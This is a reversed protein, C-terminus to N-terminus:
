AGAPAIEVPRGRPPRQGVRLVIAAAIFCLLGSIVFSSVYNGSYTRLLGAGYAAVASGVQHIATIWGFMMGARAAGFADACLKLTPPVTALWDLGYFIGFLTLGYFTYDFAYPLFLLSLGRLGYYWFLLYRSDFRDSLWGSGTTGIFNFIGMSALLGAATVEPIGGELCFPIFHTGVLGNTSWGCVFFSASLLWFDRSTLGEGLASIAVVFPNQPGAPPDAEARTAGYPALGLERPYDRMFIAVVPVMLLLTAAVLGAAWRWGATEVVKALMPLFILQGAATSSTLAGIVLGRRQAFWRNAVVAGLVLAALGSGTGIVVGWLLVMQWSATMVLTAALGLAMIALALITTRRLGIRDMLAASFPGLLGYLLLNVAVAFSVTARTWGFESELPVIFVTPASRVGAAALLALFAVAAVIWAYHLRSRALRTVLGMARETESNPGIDAGDAPRPEASGIHRIGFVM